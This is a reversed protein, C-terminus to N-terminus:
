PEKGRIRMALRREGPDESARRKDQGDKSREIHDQAYVMDSPDEDQVGNGVRRKIPNVDGLDTMSLIHDEANDLTPGQVISHSHNSWEAPRQHM